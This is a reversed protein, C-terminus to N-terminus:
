KALCAVACLDYILLFGSIFSIYDGKNSGMLLGLKM